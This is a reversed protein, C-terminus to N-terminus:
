LRPSQNGRSRARLWMSVAAMMMVLWGAAAGPRSPSAACKCSSAPPPEAFDGSGGAVGGTPPAIAGDAGGSVAADTGPAPENGRCVGVGEKIAMCMQGAPCNNIILDCPEICLNRDCVYPRRCESICVEFQGPLNEEGTDPQVVGSDPSPGGADTRGSDSVGADPRPPNPDPVCAGGDFNQLGACIQGNPCDAGSTNCIRYCKADNASSGACVLGAKCLGGTAACPQGIDAPAPGGGGGGGGGSCSNSSPWCVGPGGQTPVCDYGTPCANRSSDCTQTCISMNPGQVCIGSACEQGSSCPACLGGASGAGGGGGAPEPQTCQSNRCVLGSGCDSDRSCPKTCVKTGDASVCKLGAKCDTDANCKSGAAGKDAPYIYCVGAADDPHISARITEGLTASPFMTAEFISPEHGLGLFHGIEHTAINAVDMRGRAGTTSWSYDQGNFRIDADIIVGDYYFVPTTVGITGSGFERPWNSEVWYVQNLGDSQSARRVDNAGKFEFRLFTCEPKEWEKYSAKVAEVDSNDSIDASGDKQVWYPVPMRPWYINKNGAKITDFAQAAPVYLAVFLLFFSVPGFGRFTKTMM